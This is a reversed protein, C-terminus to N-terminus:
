AAGALPPRSSAFFEAGSIGRAANPDRWGVQPSPSAVPKAAQLFKGQYGPMREAELAGAAWKHWQYRIPALDCFFSPLSRKVDHCREMREIVESVLRADTTLMARAHRLNKQEWKADLTQGPFRDNYIRRMAGVIRWEDQSWTPAKPKTKTKKPREVEILTKEVPISVPAIREPEVPAAAVNTAKVAGRAKLKTKLNPLLNLILNPARKPINADQNPINIDQNPINIDQFPICKIAGGRPYIAESVVYTTSRRGNEVTPRIRQLHGLVELEGLVEGVHNRAVTSVRSLTNISPFCEGTQNSAFQCLALAVKLQRGTLFGFCAPNINFLAM